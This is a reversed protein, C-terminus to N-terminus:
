TGELKSSEQQMTCQGSYFIVQEFADPLGHETNYAEVRKRLAGAVERTRALLARAEEELPHGPWVDFTYTSGGVVDPPLNREGSLRQCVTKVVAQFHDFVSAEWGIPSGLPVVFESSHFVAGGSRDERKVRGAEVLRELAADLDGNETGAIKDLEERTLPGNRYVMVWILEDIQGPSARRLKVLEADSAGRYTTSEGSGSRFVLGSETLDHLVARVLLADDRHFRQAVESRTVVRGDSLFDLVADSLSRGRETSSESLRQIKRLYTRLALGFMGASVKRSVGQTNLEAALELFVQNAVHALPARVGGSTALQAILVTTQRVVSDILLQVNM